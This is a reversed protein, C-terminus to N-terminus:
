AVITTVPNKISIIIKHIDEKSSTYPIRILQINNAKCFENKISDNNKRKQFGVDGGFFDIPEFHQKGDYEIVVNYDPLYFDFPLQRINKCNKFRFQTEFLISEEKLIDAILRENHSIHTCGCSQTNHAVLDSTTAVITNGCSCVCEWTRRHKQNDYLSPKIVTLMGFVRGSLNVANSDYNDCGCSKVRQGTLKGTTVIRNGGCECKCLWEMHGKSNVELQEIVTLKGYKKGLLNKNHKRHHRSEKEICGCSKSFGRKINSMYIIKETGCDCRCRAYTKGKNNYNYLMEVIVLNGFRQGTYDKREM